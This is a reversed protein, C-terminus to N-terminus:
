KSSVNNLAKIDRVKYCLSKFPSEKVANLKEQFETKLPKNKWEFFKTYLEDDNYCKNIFEGLSKPSEFSTINIFCNEGPAFDNINPAGLYIPVTGSILPNFFKETVYDQSIANEFGICFKYQSITRRLTEVGKDDETLNCNHMIRGYSDIPTFTMLEKIYEFRKSKNFPSSIFMCTKDKKNNISFKKKFDDTTLSDYYTYLIDDKLHYGM